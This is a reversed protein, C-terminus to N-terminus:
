RQESAVVTFGHPDSQALIRESEAIMAEDRAIAEHTIDRRGAPTLEWLGLTGDQLMGIRERTTVNRQRLETLFEALAPTM